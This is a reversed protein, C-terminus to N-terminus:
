DYSNQYDAQPDIGLTEQPNITSGDAVFSLVNTYMNLHVRNTYLYSYNIVCM